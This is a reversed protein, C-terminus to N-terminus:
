KKATKPNIFPEFLLPFQIAAVIAYVIPLQFSGHGEWGPQGTGITLFTLYVVSIGITLRVLRLRRYFNLTIISALSSVVFITAWVYNPAHWIPFTPPPGFFFNAALALGGLAIFMLMRYVLPHTKRINIEGNNLKM